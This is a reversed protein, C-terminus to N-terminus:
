VICGSITQQHQVGSKSSIFCKAFVDCRSNQGKEGDDGSWKMVCTDGYYDRMSNTSQRTHENDTNIHQPHNFSVAGYLSPPIYMICRLFKRAHCRVTSLFMFRVKIYHLYKVFSDYSSIVALWMAHSHYKLYRWCMVIAVETSGENGFKHVTHYEFKSAEIGDM